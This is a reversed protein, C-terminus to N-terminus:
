YFLERTADTLCAEFAKNKAIRLQEFYLWLEDENQPVSDVRFIDLDLVISVVNERAPPVMAMNLVLLAAIDRHPIQLQMFFSSLGQPLDPAVNPVTRIYKEFDDFPLPLDLRNVYRLGVRSINEPGVIGRYWRWIECGEEKFEEWSKYPALKNFSWGDLQARFLRDNSVHNRQFGVLTRNMTPTSPAADGFQVAGTVRFQEHVGPYRQALDPPLDRLVDVELGDRPVVRIDMVAETIPARPYRM